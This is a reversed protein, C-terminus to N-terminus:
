FLGAIFYIVGFGTGAIVSYLLVPGAVTFIKAGMGLVWGENKSDIAASAISNAFGTIPVLTGAGTHKAIKPFIGLGTLLASILVLTISLGMYADREALGLNVYFDKLIQGLGCIVGGSLFAKATNIGVKSKPAHANVYKKYSENQINM